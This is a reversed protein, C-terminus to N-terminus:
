YQLCSGIQRAFAEAMAPSEYLEESPINRVFPTQKMEYFAEYM